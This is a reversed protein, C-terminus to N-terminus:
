KQCKLKRTHTKAIDLWYKPGEPSMSLYFFGIAFTKLRFNYKTWMKDEDKFYNRTNHLYRARVPEPLYNTAYEICNMKPM